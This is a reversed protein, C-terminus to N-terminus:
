SKTLRAILDDVDSRPIPKFTPQLPEVYKAWLEQRLKPFRGKSKEFLRENVAAEQEKSLVRSPPRCDALFKSALKEDLSARRNQMHYYLRGVVGDMEKKKLRRSPVPIKEAARRSLSAPMFQTQESYIRQVLRREADKSLGHTVRLNMLRLQSKRLEKNVQQEEMAAHYLNQVSAEQQARTLKLNAPLLGGTLEDASLEYRRRHSQRSVSRNPPLELSAMGSPEVYSEYPAWISLDSLQTFKCFGRSHADGLM